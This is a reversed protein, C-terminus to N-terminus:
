LLPASGLRVVDWQGESLAIPTGCDHKGRAEHIVAVDATDLSRDDDDGSADDCNQDRLDLKPFGTDVVICDIIVQREGSAHTIIVESGSDRIRIM